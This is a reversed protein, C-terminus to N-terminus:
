ANVIDVKVDPNREVNQPYSLLAHETKVADVVLDTERNAYLM